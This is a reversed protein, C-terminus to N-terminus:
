APILNDLLDATKQGMLQPDDKNPKEDDEDEEDQPLISMLYTIFEEPLAAIFEGLRDAVIKDKSEARITPVNLSDM